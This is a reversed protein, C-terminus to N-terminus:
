SKSNCERKLKLRFYWNFKKVRNNEDFIKDHESIFKLERFSKNGNVILKYAKKFNERNLNSKIGELWEKSSNKSIRGKLILFIQENCLDFYRYFGSIIKEQEFKGRNNILFVQSINEINLEKLLNDSLMIQVPLKEIINRYEKNLSDQFQDRSIKRTFYLTLIIGIFGFASIIVQYADANKNLCDWINYYECM